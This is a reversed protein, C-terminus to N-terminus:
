GDFIKYLPLKLIRLMEKRGNIGFALPVMEWLIQGVYIFLYFRVESLVKILELLCFFFLLIGSFFAVDAMGSFFAVDTWCCLSSFLTWPHRM